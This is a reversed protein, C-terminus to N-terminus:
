NKIKLWQKSGHNRFYIIQALSIDRYEETDVDYLLVLGKPARNYRGRNSHTPNPDHRQKLLHLNKVNKRCNYRTRIQGDKSVYKFGFTKPIDKEWDWADNNMLNLADVISIANSM